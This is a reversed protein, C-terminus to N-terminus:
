AHQRANTRELLADISRKFRDKDASCHEILERVRWFEMAGFTNITPEVYLAPPFHELQAEIMKRTMIQAAVFGLDIMGPDQGASEPEPTGNVDIAIVMDCDRSAQDIPVPNIVNGDIYTQGDVIVPKFAAPIAMSAAIATHLPGHDFVVQEWTYFNAAITSFPVKLESFDTPFDDPLFAETISEADVQFSLGNQLIGILTPRHASWVTGAILQFSGLVACAHERLEAGTMGSAWGAGILGGISTGAIRDPKLGLEDMAEIYCIHALGRAAGGGLAVGIRPSSTLPAPSPEIETDRLM